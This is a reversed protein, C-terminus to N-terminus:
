CIVIILFISFLLNTLTFRVESWFGYSGLVQLLCLGSLLLTRMTVCLLWIDLTKLWVPSTCVPAVDIINKLGLISVICSFCWKFLGSCNECLKSSGANKFWPLLLNVRFLRNKTTTLFACNEYLQFCHAVIFWIYEM